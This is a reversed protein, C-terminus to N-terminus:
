AVPRKRDVRLVRSFAQEVEARANLNARRHHVHVAHQDAVHEILILSDADASQRVGRLGSVAALHDNHKGARLRWIGWLIEVIEEHTSASM